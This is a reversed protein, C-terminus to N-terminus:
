KKMIIFAESIHHAKRAAFDAIQHRCSFGNAIVFAEPKSLISPVLVREAMKKSIEYHRAEYGFSGAMGCCGSDIEEYKVEPWLSFIDRVTTMGFISKQHCHGHVLIHNSQPKIIGTARNTKQLVDLLVMEFPQIKKLQSAIKDDAILDPIDDMWASACGPELVGIPINK